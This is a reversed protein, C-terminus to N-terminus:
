PFSSIRRGVEAVEQIYSGSMANGTKPYSIRVKEHGSGQQIHPYVDGEGKSKDLGHFDM